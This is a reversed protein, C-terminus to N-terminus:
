KSDTNEGLFKMSGSMLAEMKTNDIDSLYSSLKQNMEKFKDQINKFFAEREETWDIISYTAKFAKKEHSQYFPHLRTGEEVVYIAKGGEGFETRQHLTTYYEKKLTPEKDMWTAISREPEEVEYGVFYQFDSSTVEGMAGGTWDARKHKSGHKFNIFIKKTRLLSAKANRAIIEHTLAEIGDVIDSVLNSKITKKFYKSEINALSNGKRRMEEKLKKLTELSRYKEETDVLVNYMWEPITCEYIPNQKEDLGDTKISIETREFDEMKPRIPLQAFAKITTM